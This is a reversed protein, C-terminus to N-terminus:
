KPKLTCAPSQDSEQCPTLLGEEHPDAEKPVSSAPAHSCSNALGLTRCKGKEEGPDRRPKWLYGLEDPLSGAEGFDALEGIGTEAPTLIRRTM